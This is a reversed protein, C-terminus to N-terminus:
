RNRHRLIAIPVVAKSATQPTASVTAVYRETV